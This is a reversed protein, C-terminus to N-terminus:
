RWARRWARPQGGTMLLHRMLLARRPGGPVGLCAM